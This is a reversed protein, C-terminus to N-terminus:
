NNKAHYKIKNTLNFLEKAAKRARQELCLIRLEIAELESRTPPNDVGSLQGAYYAIERLIKGLRERKNAFEKEIPHIM